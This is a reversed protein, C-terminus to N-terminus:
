MKTYKKLENANADKRKDKTTSTTKQKKRDVASFSKLYIIFM